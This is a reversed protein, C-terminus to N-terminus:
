QGPAFDLGFPFPPQLSFGYSRSHNPVGTDGRDMKRRLRELPLREAPLLERSTLNFDRM